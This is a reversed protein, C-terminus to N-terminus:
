VFVIGPGVVGSCIFYVNRFCWVIRFLTRYLNYVKLIQSFTITHNTYGRSFRWKGGGNWEGHFAIYLCLYYYTETFIATVYIPGSLMTFYVNMSWLWLYIICVHVLLMPLTFMCQGYAYTFICVNVMLMPLTYEHCLICLHAIYM